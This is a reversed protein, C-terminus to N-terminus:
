NVKYLSWESTGICALKSDLQSVHSSALPIECILFHPKIGYVM